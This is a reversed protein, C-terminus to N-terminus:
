VAGGGHERPLDDIKSLAPWISRPFHLKAGSADQLICHASDFSIACCIGYGKRMMANHLGSITKYTKGRWQYAHRIYEPMSRSPSEMSGGEIIWAANPVIPAATANIGLRLM